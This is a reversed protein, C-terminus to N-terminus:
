LHKVSFHKVPVCKPQTHSALILKKRSARASKGIIGKFFFRFFDATALRSDRRSVDFLKRSIQCYTRAATARPGKSPILRIPCLIPVSSPGWSRAYDVCSMLALAFALIVNIVRQIIGRAREERLHAVGREREREPGGCTTEINNYIGGKQM